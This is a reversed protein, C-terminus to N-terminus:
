TGVIAVVGGAFAVAGAALPLRKREHLTDRM